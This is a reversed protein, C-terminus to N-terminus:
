MLDSNVNCLCLYVKDVVEHINLITREDRSVINLMMFLSSESINPPQSPSGYSLSLLASYILKKM